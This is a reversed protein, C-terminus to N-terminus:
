FLSFFYVPLNGIVGAMINTNLSRKAAESLFGCSLRRIQATAVMAKAKALSTLLQCNNSLILATNVTGM